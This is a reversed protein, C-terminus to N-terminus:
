NRPPLEDIEKLIACVGAFDLYGIVDNTVPTDYVIEGDYLVAIEFLGERGGYSGDHSVISASYGNHYFEIVRIYENKKNNGIGVKVTQM